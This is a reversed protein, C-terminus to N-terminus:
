QFQTLKTRDLKRLAGAAILTRLTPVPVVLVDYDTAARLRAELAPVSPYTDYVVRIGTASTFEELSRQDFYDSWSLINLVRPEAIANGALAALCLALAALIARACRM